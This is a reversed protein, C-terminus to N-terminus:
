WRIRFTLNMSHNLFRLPLKPYYNAFVMNTIQDIVLISIEDSSMSEVEIQSLVPEEDAPEKDIDEKFKVKSKIHDVRENKILM